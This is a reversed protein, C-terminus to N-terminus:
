DLGEIKEQDAKDNDVLTFRLRTQCHYVNSINDKGGVNAVIDRALAEYQKSM